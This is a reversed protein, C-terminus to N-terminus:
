GDHFFGNAIPSQELEVALAASKDAIQKLAPQGTVATASGVKKLALAIEKGTTGTIDTVTATYPRLECGDQTKGDDSVSKWEAQQCLPAAKPADAQQVPEQAVASHALTAYFAVLVLKLNKM